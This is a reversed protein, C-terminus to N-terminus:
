LYRECGMEQMKKIDMDGYNEVLDFPKNFGQTFTHFARGDVRIIVPTRRTLKFRYPFEYNQKMRIDLDSHIPM